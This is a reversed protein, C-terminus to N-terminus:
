TTELQFLVASIWSVVTRRTFFISNKKTECSRLFHHSSSVGVISSFLFSRTPFPFREKAEVHSSTRRSICFHLFWALFLIVYCTVVWHTVILCEEKKGKKGKGGLFGWKLIMNHKDHPSQNGPTLFFSFLWPVVYKAKNLFISSLIKNWM